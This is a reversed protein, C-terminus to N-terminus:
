PGFFRYWVDTPRTTLLVPIDAITLKGDGDFDLPLLRSFVVETVGPLLQAYSQAPLYGGVLVVVRYTENPIIQRLGEANIKGDVLTLGTFEHIVTENQDYVLVKVDNTNARLRWALSVSLVMSPPPIIEVDATELVYERDGKDLVLSYTYTGRTEPSNLHVVVRGTQGPELTPVSDAIFMLTEVSGKIGLTYSPDTIAQGKNVIEGVITVSSDGVLAKPFFPNILSYTERQKPTGIIKPLNRYTYYHEYFGDGGFRRWSFHDFPVDQYNLIFPTVAAIRRDNWANAAATKIYEAVTKSRLLSLDLSKGDHHRWGTETIFVPLNGTGGLRSLLDLEWEYSRLSGKGTALPSGSFAPNPYSHSTWGDFVSLIDPQSAVMRRLFTEEAMTTIGDPASADLGAPLVFFDESTEKLNKVYSVFLDAYEEPNITGGWEAAHNPENFLVVYRNEIPWNLSNLFTKWDRLDELEPKKWTSGQPRTAIRVIPIVHLRRLADFIKQWKDTNRDNEQIVLTVYGWDGNSNVLFAADSIDQPDAIHIGYKNNPVSLPDYIAQVPSTLLFFLSIITLLFMM